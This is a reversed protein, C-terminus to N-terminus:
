GGFYRRFNDRGMALELVDDETLGYRAGLRAAPHHGTAYQDIIEYQQQM